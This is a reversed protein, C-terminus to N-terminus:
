FRNSGKGPHPSSLCFSNPFSRPPGRVRKRLCRSAPLGARVAEPEADASCGPRPQACRFVSQLPGLRYRFACFGGLNRRSRLLVPRTCDGALSPPGFARRFTHRWAEKVKYRYASTKLQVKKWAYLFCYSSTAM